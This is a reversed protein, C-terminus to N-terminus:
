AAEPYVGLSWPLDQHQDESPALTQRASFMEYYDRSMVDDLITCLQGTRRCVRDSLFLGVGTFVVANKNYM